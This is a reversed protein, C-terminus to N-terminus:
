RRRALMMELEEQYRQVAWELKRAEALRIAERMDQEMDQPRQLAHNAIARMYYFMFLSPVDDATAISHRATRIAESFFDVARQSNGRTWQDHGAFYNALAQLDHRVFTKNLASKAHNITKPHPNELHTNYTLGYMMEADGSSPNDQFLKKSQLTADRTAGSNRLMIIADIQDKINGSQSLQDFRSRNEASIERPEDFVDRKDMQWFAFLTLAHFIATAGSLIPTAAFDYITRWDGIALLATFAPYYILAFYVQFRVTRKAAYRIAASKHRWLFLAVVVAFLLNGVTGSASLLWERWAPFFLQDPLVFGWFFFYGFELVRGGFAWVVVAHGLEHILVGIPVAVYFAIDQGIRRKWTELPNAVFQPWRQRVTAIRRVGTYIQVISLLTFILALPSSLISIYANILPRLFSM